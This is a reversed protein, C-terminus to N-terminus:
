AGVASAASDFVCLWGGRARIGGAGVPRWFKESNQKHIHGLNKKKAEPHEVGEESAKQGNKSCLVGGHRVARRVVASAQLMM